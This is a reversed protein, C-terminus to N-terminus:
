PPDALIWPGFGTGHGHGLDFPPPLGSWGGRPGPRPSSVWYQQWSPLFRSWYNLTDSSASPLMPCSSSFFTAEPLLFFM